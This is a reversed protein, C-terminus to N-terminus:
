ITLLSTLHIHRVQENVNAMEDIVMVRIASAYGVCVEVVGNKEDEIDMMCSVGRALLARWNKNLELRELRRCAVRKQALIFDNLFLDEFEDECNAMDSRTYVGVRSPYPHCADRCAHHVRTLNHAGTGLRTAFLRQQTNNTFSSPSFMAPNHSTAIPLGLQSAQHTM